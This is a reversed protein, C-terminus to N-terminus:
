VDYGENEKAEQEYLDMIRGPEDTVPLTVSSLVGDKIWKMWRAVDDPKAKNKFAFDYDLSGNPYKKQNLWVVQQLVTAVDDETIEYFVSIIKLLRLRCERINDRMIDVGYVSQLAMLPDHDYVAIKRYLVHILMNGNGAAPDVFTKGEEWVEAPLKDLMQNVLFHPTFIEATKKVRKDRQEKTAIMHVDRQEKTAIM